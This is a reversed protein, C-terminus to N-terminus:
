DSNLKYKKEIAYYPFRPALEPPLDAPKCNWRKYLWTYQEPYRRILEENAALIAQTLRQPDDTDPLEVQKAVLKFRGDPQRVCAGSFVPLRCRRAIIAPLPSTPVPLGFFDVFLGGHRPSLNQDILIGVSTKERIARLMGKAAGERPIIQLGNISRSRDLITNLANYPFIEAVAACNSFYHPACQAVLEWNGLHPLCLIIQPPLTDPLETESLFCQINSPNKLIRLFDLWNWVTHLLNDAVMRKVESEEMEPFATRINAAILKKSSRAFLRMLCAVLGALRRTAKDELNGFAFLLTPMAIALFANTIIHSPKAHSM